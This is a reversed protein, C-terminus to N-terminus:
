YYHVWRKQGRYQIITVIMIMAFLVFSIASAYGWRYADFAQQYVTFALVTTARGPGGRTLVYVLSFVKFSDIIAIVSAFFVTPTLMPLTISFFKRVASAGDISASEYLQRPITQLGALFIVMYYGMKHWIAVMIVSAMASNSAGFWRPPNDIGISRLFENVPGFDPHFLLRWVVAVAVIAAMNPVFLLTRFAGRAIMKRNLFVAILISLALTFPVAFFTYVVTNVFSIRFTSDGFM